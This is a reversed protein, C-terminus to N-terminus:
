RRLKGSTVRISAIRDKGKLAENVRAVLEDKRYVGLEHVLAQSSVKIRLEGEKYSQVDSNAAIEPGAATRWAQRFREIRSATKTRILPFFDSARKPLVVRGYADRTRRAVSSSENFSPSVQPQRNM